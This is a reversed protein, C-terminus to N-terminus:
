NKKEETWNKKAERFQKIYELEYAEQLFTENIASVVKGCKHNSDVEREYGGALFM